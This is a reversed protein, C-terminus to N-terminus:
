ENADIRLSERGPLRYLQFQQLLADPGILIKGFEGKGASLILHEIIDPVAFGIRTADSGIDEFSHGLFALDVQSIELEYRVLVALM